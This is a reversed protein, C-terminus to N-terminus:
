KDYEREWREFVEPYERILNMWQKDNEGQESNIYWLSEENTDYITIPFSRWKSLSTNKTGYINVM